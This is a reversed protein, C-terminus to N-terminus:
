PLTSSSCCWWSYLPCGPLCGLPLHWQTCHPTIVLPQCDSYLACGEIASTPLRACGGGVHMCCLLLLCSWSFLVLYTLQQAIAIPLPAGVSMATKFLCDLSLVQGTSSSFIFGAAAFLATVARPWPVSASSLIVLYQVYLVVVKLIDSGKLTSDSRVNDVYTAHSMYVLVCIICFLALVFLGLTLSASMCQGCTFPKTSGYGPMCNGCLNGKYADGCQWDMSAQESAKGTEPQAMSTSLNGQAQDCAAQNPCRHMQTSYRHSHWYGKIPVLSDKGLCVANAPCIACETASASISYLNAGCADCWGGGKLIEGIRCERSVYFVDPDGFTAQNHHAAQAACSWSFTFNDQSSDGIFM